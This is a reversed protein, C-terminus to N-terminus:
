PRAFSTSYVRVLRTSRNIIVCSQMAAHVGRIDPGSTASHGSQTRENSAPHQQWRGGLEPPALAQRGNTAPRRRLSIALFSNTNPARRQRASPYFTETRFRLALSAAPAACLRQLKTSATARGGRM